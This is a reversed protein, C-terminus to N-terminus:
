TRAISFRNSSGRSRPASETTAARFWASASTAIPSSSACSRSRRRPPASRRSPPKSRSRSRACSTSTRPSRPACAGELAAGAARCQGQAARGQPEQLAGRGESAEAPAHAAKRDGRASGELARPERAHAPHPARDRAPAGQVELHRGSGRSVGAAGRAQGRRAPLDHGARHDLLRALGRGHRAPYSHHGQPPLARQEPLVAVHRRAVRRPARGGRQLGRLRGHDHRRLQRVHARHERHRGAQPECSGNFIVDVMSDGRLTKASAEGLVWRIADIINSKGCGNPGVIGM